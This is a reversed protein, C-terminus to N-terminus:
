VAVFLWTLSRPSRVGRPAENPVHLFFKAQLELESQPGAELTEVLPRLFRPDILHSLCGM